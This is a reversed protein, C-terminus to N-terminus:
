KYLKYTKLIDTNKDLFSKPYWEKLENTCIGFLAMCTPILISSRYFFCQSPQRM